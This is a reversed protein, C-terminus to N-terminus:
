IESIKTIICHSSTHNGKMMMKVPNVSLTAQTDSIFGIVKIIQNVSTCKVYHTTSIFDIEETAFRICKTHYNRIIGGVSQQNGGLIDFDTDTQLDDLLIFWSFYSRADNYSPFIDINCVIQFVGTTTLTHQWLTKQTAVASFKIVVDGSITEQDPSDRIKVFYLPNGGGSAPTSWKMGVDATNDCTLVKGNTSIALKTTAVSGRVIIDGKTSLLGMFSDIAAHSNSGVNNLHVAHDLRKWEIGYPAASHCSLVNGNPSPGVPFATPGNLYHRALIDGTNELIMDLNSHISQDDVHSDLVMHNYTGINTLYDHDTVGTSVAANIWETGSYALFDGMSPATIICDTMQSLQTTQPLENWTVGNYIYTKNESTVIAVDGSEVTLGDRETIDAVTHVDTLSIPPLQFAQIPPSVIDSPM